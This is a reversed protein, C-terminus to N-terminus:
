GHYVQMTEIGDISQQSDRAINSLFSNLNSSSHQLLLKYTYIYLLTPANLPISQSQDCLTRQCM